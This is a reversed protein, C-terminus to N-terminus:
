DTAAAALTTDPVPNNLVLFDGKADCGPMALTVETVTVQGGEVALTEGLIDRGCTAETVEAEITVRAARAPDAPFTYVEAMLPVPAAADGLVVLRGDGTAGSWLHGSDGYGAGGEFAHLQFRDEGQWQVAMRRIGTLDTPVEAVLESGDQMRLVVRGATDLVPLSLFMSGSGSTQGSVALGAHQLVVSADPACPALLVLDIMAGPAALATLTMDCVPAAAVTETADTAPTAEAPAVPVPAPAEAVVPPAPLAPSTLDTGAPELAATEPGALAVPEPAPTQTPAVPMAPTPIASASLTVIGQPEAAPAAAARETAKSQVFQGAGLAVGAVVAVIAVKRPLGKIDPRFRSGGALPAAASVPVPAASSRLAALRTRVATVLGALVASQAGRSGGAVPVRIRSRLTALREGAVGALEKIRANAM